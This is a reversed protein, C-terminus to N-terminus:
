QVSGKGEPEPESAPAPSVARHREAEMEARVEAVMDEMFEAANAAAERGSEYAIIGGRIIGKALPRGLSSLAPMIAKAIGAALLGVGIGIWMRKDESSLGM